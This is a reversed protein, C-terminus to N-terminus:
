KNNGQSVFDKGAETLKGLAGGAAKGAGLVSNSAAGMGASLSLLMGQAPDTAADNFTNVKAGMYRLLNNPVLDILKFCSLGIMYVIIAYIVTFFFEDIPGRYHNAANGDGNLLDNCTQAFSRDHGSLNTVVLGFIENLVKVMAAFIIVSALLGFIILIPRLFIEFILYYGDRAGDGPLGEGDIRLHALAWLPVGVMAEFLGKIWGGVAFFFYLFPMFPIVYFLMFGMTLTMTAISVLMSSAAGLAPGIFPVAAGPGLLIAAALNRISSEVLGKGLLSLQALPHTDANACMNFLGRTGFVLNIADIIINSTKKTATGEDDQRADEQTWAKEVQTLAVGIAREPESNFMMLTSDAQSLDFQLASRTNQQMQKAKIHELVAPWSNIRPINSVATSLSGNIQAIKNYWVGAAGWGRQEMLERQQEWTDSNRQAEVAENIANRIRTNLQGQLQAKYGQPPLVANPLRLNQFEIYRDFYNQGYQRVQYDQAWLDQILEYYEQQIQVAGPEYTDSSYIVLEGCYPFVNSTHKDQWLASHEGFRIIIDGYNFYQHAQAFTTDTLLMFQPNTAANTVLYANIQKGYVRNYGHSCADVVMMFGALDIIEPAQPVGVNDDGALYADNMTDNFLMWGRTAFDSGFKAAYLTIWQAANLGWGMPILLGLAVVIRIPTWVHNYRKGFPVGTQATEVVVAFIYYCAIIVAVVLLGVSYLQFLGHLAEHYETRAAGPNFLEPVGFVMWMMRYAVDETYVPDQFFEGYTTPMQAQAPSVMIFALTIFIQVILLAMGALILFYIAIKDINKRDFVLEAAAAAMVARLTLQSRKERSFLSHNAPLLNLSRYLTLLIYALRSFGERYFQHIRPMIQPTLVYRLVDGRTIQDTMGKNAMM